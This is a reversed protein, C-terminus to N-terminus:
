HTRPQILTCVYCMLSMIRFDGRGRRSHHNMQHEDKQQGTNGACLKIIRPVDSVAGVVGAATM